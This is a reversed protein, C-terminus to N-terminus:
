AFSCLFNINYVWSKEDKTESSEKAHRNHLVCGPILLTMTSSNWCGFPWHEAPQFHTSSFLLQSRFRQPSPHQFCPHLWVSSYKESWLPQDAWCFFGIRNRFTMGDQGLRWFQVKWCCSKASVNQIFIIICSMVIIRSPMSRDSVFVM